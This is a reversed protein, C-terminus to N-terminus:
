IPALFLLDTSYTRHAGLMTVPWDVGDRGAESIWSAERVIAEDVCDLRNRVVSRSGVDGSAKGNRHCFPYGDVKMRLAAHGSKM